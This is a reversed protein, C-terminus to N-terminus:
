IRMMEGRLYCKLETMYGKVGMTYLYLRSANYNSTKIIEKMHWITKKKFRTSQYNIKMVIWAFTRWINMSTILGDYTCKDYLFMDLARIVDYSTNLRYSTANIAQRALSWWIAFKWWKVHIVPHMTTLMSHCFHTKYQLPFLYLGHDIAYLEIHTIISIHSINLFPIVGSICKTGTNILANYTAIYHVNMNLYRKCSVHPIM